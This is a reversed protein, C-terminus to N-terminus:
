SGYRGPVNALREIKRELEWLGPPIREVHKVTKTKGDVTLQVTFESADAFSTPYTDKLEFFHIANFAAILERYDGPGIKSIVVPGHPDSRSGSSFFLTDPPVIQVMYGGDVGRGCCSLIITNFGQLPITLRPGLPLQPFPRDALPGKLVPTQGSEVFHADIVSSRYGCIMWVLSVAALIMYRTFPRKTKM